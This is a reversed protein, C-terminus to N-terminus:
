KSFRDTEEGKKEVFGYERFVILFHPTKDGLISPRKKFTLQSCGIKNQFGRPRRGNKKCLGSNWIKENNAFLSHFIV